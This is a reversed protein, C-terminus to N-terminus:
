QEPRHGGPNRGWPAAHYQCKRSRTRLCPKGWEMLLLAKLGSLMGMVRIPPVQSCTFGREDVFEQRVRPQRRPDGYEDVVETVDIDVFRQNAAFGIIPRYDAQRVAANAAAHTVVEALCQIFQMSQLDLVDDHLGTTDSFGRLNPLM